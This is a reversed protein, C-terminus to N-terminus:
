RDGTVPDIEYLNGRVGLDTWVSVHHEESRHALRWGLRAAEPERQSLTRNSGAGDSLAFVYM